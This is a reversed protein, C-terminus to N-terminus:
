RGRLPLLRRLRPERIVLSLWLLVGLGVPIFWPEGVRVHAAVAGGLYGTLLVAGLVSTQPILYLVTSAVEVIGLPVMLGTSWGMKESNEAAEKPPFFKFVASVALLGIAPFAVVAGIIKTKMSVKATEEM